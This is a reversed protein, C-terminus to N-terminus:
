LLLFLDPDEGDCVPVGHRKLSFLPVRGCFGERQFGAIGKADDAASKLADGDRSDCGAGHLKGVTHALNGALFHIDVHIHGRVLLLHQTQSQLPMKFGLPCVEAATRELDFRQSQKKNVINGGVPGIGGSFRRVQQRCKFLQQFLPDFEGKGREGFV